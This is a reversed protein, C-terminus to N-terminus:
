NYNINVRFMLQTFEYYQIFLAFHKVRKQKQEKQNILIIKLEALRFFFRVYMPNPEPNNQAIRQPRQVLPALFERSLISLM